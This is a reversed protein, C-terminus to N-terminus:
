NRVQRVPLSLARLPADTLSAVSYLPVGSDAGVVSVAGRLGAGTPVVWVADADGLDVVRTSDAPVDVTTTRGTAGSGIRVQASSATSGTSLLLRKTMGGLAPLALGSVGRLAPTAPSWAFDGMHDATTARRETWASAVVPEDSRLGLGVAGSAGPVQVATTSQGPVRVARLVDPQVAGKDTLLRVQVLAETDGLNAIRVWVAGSVDVGAIVLDKSPPAARTGDDIGRATAGDVWQEDLVASVVGGTATVHVVPGPEDPAVADLSIVARSLPPISVSHDDTGPLRGKTGFIELSATVANAGPNSVILRETRSAGAGGAVLWVDSSPPQCPTVALGRDDDGTHRWVQTAVAGPALASKARAVVPYAATVPASVVLGSQGGSSIKTADPGGELTVTGSGGDPVGSVLGEPLPAVATVVDGKVDRLGVAGLRQQGPCVLTAQDVLVSSSDPLGAGSHRDALQVSGSVHTAALALAAATLTVAGVRAVGGLHRM